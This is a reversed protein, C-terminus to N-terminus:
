GDELPLQANNDLFKQLGTVPYLRVSGLYVVPLQPVVYRDFTEDSVGLARAAEPKRLALRPPEARDGTTIM